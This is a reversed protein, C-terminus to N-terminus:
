RADLRAIIERLQTRDEDEIVFSVGVRDVGAEGGGDPQVWMVEARVRLTEDGENFCPLEVDIPVWEENEIREVLDWAGDVLFAGGSESLNVCLGHAWTSAAPITPFRYRIPRKIVVRRERRREEVKSDTAEVFSRPAFADEVPRPDAPARDTM